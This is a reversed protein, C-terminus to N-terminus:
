ENVITGQNQQNQQHFPARFGKGNKNQMRYILYNECMLSNGNYGCVNIAQNPHEPKGSPVIDFEVCEGIFLIPYRNRNVFKISSQHVFIDHGKFECDSLVTIFGYKLRKNFRRVCGIVHNQSSVGVAVPAAVSSNDSAM